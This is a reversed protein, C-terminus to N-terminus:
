PTDGNYQPMAADDYGQVNNSPTSLDLFQFGGVNGKLTIMYFNSEEDEQILKTGQAGGWGPIDVLEGDGTVEATGGWYQMTPMEWEWANQFHLTLNMVGEAKATMAMSPIMTLIMVMTLVVSMVKTFIKKHGM